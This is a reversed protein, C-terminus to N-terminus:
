KKEEPPLTAIKGSERSERISSELADIRELALSMRSNVLVHVEELKEEARDLKAGNHASKWLGLAIGMLGLAQGALRFWDLLSM